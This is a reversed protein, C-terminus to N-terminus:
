ISNCLNVIESIVLALAIIRALSRFGLRVMIYHQGVNMDFKM